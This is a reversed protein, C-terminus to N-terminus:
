PKKEFVPPQKEPLTLKGVTTPILEKLQSENIQTVDIFTWNISDKNSVALLYSQQTLVGEPTKMKLTYPVIAFIQSEVPVVEKPVDASISIVEVGQGKMEKMQQEVLSAMRARGGMLEVLKPYTSDVLKQYDGSLFSNLSEEARAKIEETKVGEVKIEERRTQTCSISSLLILGVVLCIKKYM